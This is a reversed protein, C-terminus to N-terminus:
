RGEAETGAEPAVEGGGGRRGGCVSPPAGARPPLGALPRGSPAGFRPAHLLQSYPAV